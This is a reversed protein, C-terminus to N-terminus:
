FKALLSSIFDAYDRKERRRSAQKLLRAVHITMARMFMLLGQACGRRHPKLLRDAIAPFRGRPIAPRARDGAQGEHLAPFDRSTRRRALRLMRAPPDGRSRASVCGRRNLSHLCANIGAVIIRSCTRATPLTDLETGFFASYRKKTLVLDSADVNLEPLLRAWEAKVVIHLVEEPSRPRM